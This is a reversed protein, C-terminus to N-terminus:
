AKRYQGQFSANMGLYGLAGSEEALLGNEKFRLTLVYKRDEFYNDIFTCENVQFEAEFDVEGFNPGYLRTKGWLAMGTVRLNGNLLQYIQLEASEFDGERVYHGSVGDSDTLITEGFAVPQKWIVEIANFLEQRYRRLEFLTINKSQSTRSDYQDHHELCLYALNEIDSNGSNHDLHAIQGRKISTDRNLGFCVCCRRRSLALVEEEIEPRVKKRKM